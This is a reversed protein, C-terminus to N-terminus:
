TFQFTLNGNYTALSTLLPVLHMYSSTDFYPDYLQSRIFFFIIIGGIFGFLKAMPGIDM